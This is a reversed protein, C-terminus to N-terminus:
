NHNQFTIRFVCNKDVRSERGCTDERVGIQYGTLGSVIAEIYGELFACLRLDNINKGVTLFCDSVIISGTLGKPVDVVNPKFEGWGATLEMRGWLSLRRDIEEKSIPASASPKLPPNIDASVMVHEEMQSWTTEVFNSGITRGIERLKSEGGERNLLGELIIQMTEIRASVHRYGEKILKPGNLEYDVMKQPRLSKIFEKLEFNLDVVFKRFLWRRIRLSCQQLLPWLAVLVLGVFLWPTIAREWIKWNKPDWYINGIMSVLAAISVFYGILKLVRTM